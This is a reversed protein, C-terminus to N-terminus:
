SPTEGITNTTDTTTPESPALEVLRPADRDKLSIQSADDPDIPIPWAIALDPDLPTVARGPMDPRWEADFCYVYQCPDSLAQFGNAVGAPVIVEVGPRLDVTDVRGFTPSDPRLDVYVAFAEGSAVSILKTMDEAHMGRVAGRRSETVNVQRFEPLEIGAAEFASRRFIERVTGRADTVQKATLVLMGGIAGTHSTFEIIETVV